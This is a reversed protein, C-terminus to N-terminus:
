QLPMALEQEFVAGVHITFRGDTELVVTSRYVTATFSLKLTFDTGAVPLTVSLGRGETAREDLGLVESLPSGTVSM